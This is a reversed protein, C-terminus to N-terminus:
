RKDAEPPFDDYKVAVLCLGQAPLSHAVTENPNADLMERMDSPRLKGRGVDALAGAMRRVQHPLFANGEIEIYILEDERRVRSEYVERVTSAGPKELPGAFNRFDHVGVFEKAASQMRKISVPASIRAVTRRLLPARTTGSYITYRYFRSLADRRPDFRDDVLHAEKVVIDDPLHHNLAATVTEPEREEDLDFAAVQGKAHVGADTRGAAKVRVREGAFRAIAEELEEQISPANNQIQFGSYNTGEYELVLAFRVM